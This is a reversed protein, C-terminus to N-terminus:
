LEKAMIQAVDRDLELLATDLEHPIVEYRKMVGGPHNVTFPRIVGGRGMFALRPRADVPGMSAPRSQRFEARRASEASILHPRTAQGLEQLAAMGKAKVDVSLQQGDDVLRSVGFMDRSVKSSMNSFVRRGIGLTRFKSAARTRARSAARRVANGKLKILVRPDPLKIPSVEILSPKM